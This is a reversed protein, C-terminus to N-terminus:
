PGAKNPAHSTAHSQSREAGAFNPAFAKPMLYGAAQRPLYAQPRLQRTRPHSLRTTATPNLLADGLNIPVVKPEACAFTLSTPRIRTAQTAM